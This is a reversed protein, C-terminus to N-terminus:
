VNKKGVRKLYCLKAPGVKRIKVIGESILALVYKSATQRTVNMHKSITLIPLGEPHDRLLDLIRERVHNEGPKKDLTVDAKLRKVLDSNTRKVKKPEIDVNVTPFATMLGIGASRLTNKTEKSVFESEEKPLAVYVINAKQMFHLAQGIAKTVELRQNKISVAIIDNNNLAVIEPFKGGISINSFCVYGKDELWKQINKNM